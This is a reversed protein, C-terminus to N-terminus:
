ISTYRNMIEFFKKRIKKNKIPNGVLVINNNKDMLFTHFMTNNPIHPNRKAFVGCTDIYVNQCFGSEKIQVQLDKNKKTSLIYFVSFHNKDKTFRSIEENWLYASKLACPTCESSDLYCVYRFNVSDDCVNYTPDSCYRIFEHTEINIPESVFEKLKENIKKVRRNCANLGIFGIFLILYVKNIKM